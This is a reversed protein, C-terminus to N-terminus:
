VPAFATQDDPADAPVTRIRLILMTGLTGMIGVLVLLTPSPGAFLITAGMIVLTLLVVDRKTSWRMGGYAQWDRVMLGFLRSRRLRDDLAPSSRVLFWSTALVFPVTPIGPTILGVISLVFCGGAAALNALRRWGTAVLVPRRAAPQLVDDAARRGGAVIDLRGADGVLLQPVPAAAVSPHPQYHIAIEGRVVVEDVAGNASRGNRNERRNLATHAAWLAAGASAFAAIAGRGRRRREVRTMRGPVLLSDSESSPGSRERPQDIRVADAFQRLADALGTTRPCYNVTVTGASRDIDVAEVSSVDFLRETLRPFLDENGGSFLGPAYICIAGPAATVRVPDDPVFTRLAATKTPDTM